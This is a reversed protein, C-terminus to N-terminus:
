EEIEEETQEEEPQVSDQGEPKEEPTEPQEPDKEPQAEAPSDPTEAPIETSEEEPDKTEEESDAPTEEPNKEPPEQEEADEPTEPTEETMPDQQEPDTLAWDIYDPFEPLDSWEVEETEDPDTETTDEILGLRTKVEEETTEGMGMMVRLRNYGPTLIEAMRAFIQDQTIDQGENEEALQNGVTTQMQVFNEYGLLPYVWEDLYDEEAGEPVTISLHEDDVGFSYPEDTSAGMLEPPEYGEFNVALKEGDAFEVGRFVNQELGQLTDPLTLSRLGKSRSFADLAIYRIYWWGEPVGITTNTLNLETLKSPVGTITVATDLGDEATTYFYVDTPEEVLALGLMCRLHNEAVLLEKELATNIEEESPDNGANVLKSRIARKM